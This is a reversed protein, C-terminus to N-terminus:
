SKGLFPKAELVKKVRKRYVISLYIYGIGGALLSTILISFKAQDHIEPSDFSLLAIFVSMTFGIGALMALGIIHKWTTRSPLSSLGLKVSLYSFFSIGLTKGVLLGFLIGLGLSSTLGDLMEARFRINTNALAFIPM